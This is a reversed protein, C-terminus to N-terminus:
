PGDLRAKIVELSPAGCSDPESGESYLIGKRVDLRYKGEKLKM